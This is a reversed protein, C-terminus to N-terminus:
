AGWRSGKRIIIFAAKSENVMSRWIFLGCCVSFGRLAAQLHLLRSCFFFVRAPITGAMSSLTFFLIRFLWSHHCSTGCWKGPRVFLLLIYGSSVFISQVGAMVHFVESATKSHPCFLFYLSKERSSELLSGSEIRLARFIAFPSYMALALFPDYHSGPDDTNGLYSALHIFPPKSPQIQM